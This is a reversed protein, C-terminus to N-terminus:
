TRREIRAFDGFKDTAIKRYAEAAEEIDDYRGALIYKRGFCIGAQWKNRSKDWTVGKVGSKNDKRMAKNAQNQSPSALRLNDIRNDIRNGNIHDTEPHPWNGYTFLWALRHALYNKGCISIKWYGYSTIGGAVSGSTCGRRPKLWYFIGSEPDYSVLLMLEERTM